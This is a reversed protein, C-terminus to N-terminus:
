TPGTTVAAAGERGGGLLLPIPLLLFASACLMIGVFGLHGSLATALSSAGMMGIGYAINYISYVAGYCTLGRAEVADGLEASAPNLLIAFAISVLCLVGAVVPLEPSIGLLPLTVAMGIMGGIATRRIGFRNTLWEVSPAALGYVLTGLAFLPGVTAPGAGAAKQLHIPLLPELIGWGGAAVVVAIAPMVVRRDSLLNIASPGKPGRVHGAPLLFLRSFGDIAVFVALVLFPLRYGGVAYLWGSLVPGALSGGTSAMLTLGIMRVRNIPYHSAVLALASTWTAAAAAGQLARGLLLAPFNPASWFLAIAVVSMGAGWLMPLRYGRRDGMAGFFPTTGLAGVAYTGYLISLTTENMPGAPSYPTLPLLAGYVLYDTLVAFAVCAFITWHGARLRELTSLSAGPIATQETM